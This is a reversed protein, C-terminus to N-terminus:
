EEGWGMEIYRKIEDEICEISKRMDEIPKGKDDKRWVYKIAMGINFSEHRTIDRCQVGSPHSNYHEPKKVPDFDSM